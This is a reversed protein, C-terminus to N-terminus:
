AAVAMIAIVGVISAIAILRLKNSRQAAGNNGPVPVSKEAPRPRSFDPSIVKSTVQEPGGPQARRTQNSEITRLIQQTKRAKLQKSLSFQGDPLNYKPDNM